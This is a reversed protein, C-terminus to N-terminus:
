ADPFLRRIRAYDIVVVRHRDGCTLVIVHSCSGTQLGRTVTKVLLKNDETAPLPPCIPVIMNKWGKSVTGKSSRRRLGNMVRSTTHVINDTENEGIVLYFGIANVVAGPRLALQSEITLTDGNGDGFYLNYLGAPSPELSKKCNYDEVTAGSASNLSMCSHDYFPFGPVLSELPQDEMELPILKTTFRNPIFVPMTRLRLNAVYLSLVQPANESSAFVGLLESIVLTPDPLVHLFQQQRVTFMGRPVHELRLPDLIIDQINNVVQRLTKWAKTNAEFATYRVQRLGPPRTGSLRVTVPKGKETLLLKGLICHLGPGIEFVHVNHHVEETGWFMNFEQQFYVTRGEDLTMQSYVSGDYSNFDNTPCPSAAAAEATDLRSPRLTRVTSGQPQAKVICSGCYDENCEGCGLVM